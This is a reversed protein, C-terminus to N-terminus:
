ESNSHNPQFLVLSIDPLIGMYSCNCILFMNSGGGGMSIRDDMDMNDIM